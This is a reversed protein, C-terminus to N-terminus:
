VGAPIRLWDTNTGASVMTGSDDLIGFAPFGRVKLAKTISGEMDEVVVRAIPSLVAVQDAAEDPEGVVIAITQDRGGPFSRAFDLFRPLREECAPCSPSFVGVLTLGSLAARSVHDGEVTVADFPDTRETVALMPNPPEPSLRSIRDAHERLRRIVGLVLVLNLVSVACAFVALAILLPHM